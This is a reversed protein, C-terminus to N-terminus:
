KQAVGWVVAMGTEVCGTDQNAGPTTSANYWFTVPKGQAKAALLNALMSKGAASTSDFRFNEAYWNCTDAPPAAVWVYVFGNSKTHVRVVDINEVYGARALGSLFVFALFVLPSGIYRM